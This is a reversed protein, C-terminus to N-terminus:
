DDEGEKYRKVLADALRFSYDAIDEVKVDMEKHALLGQMAAVAAEWRRWQIDADEVQKLEGTFSVGWDSKTPELEGVYIKDGLGINVNDGMRKGIIATVM